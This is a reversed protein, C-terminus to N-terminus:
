CPMSIGVTGTKNIYGVRPSITECGVSKVMFALTMYSYKNSRPREGQLHIGIVHKKFINLWKPWCCEGCFGYLLLSFGLVLCM